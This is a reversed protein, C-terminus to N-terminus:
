PGGCSNECDNSGVAIAVRGRGAVAKRFEDSEVTAIMTEEVSGLANHEFLHRVKAFKM